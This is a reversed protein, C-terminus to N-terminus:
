FRSQSIEATKGNVTSIKLRRVKVECTVGGLNAMEHRKQARKSTSQTSRLVSQGKSHSQGNVASQSRDCNHSYFRHSHGGGGQIANVQTTLCLDRNGSTQLTEVTVRLDM